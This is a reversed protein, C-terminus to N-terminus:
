MVASQRQDNVLRNMCDTDTRRQENSAREESRENVRETKPEDARGRRKYDKRDKERKEQKDTRIQENAAGAREALQKGELRRNLKTEAV